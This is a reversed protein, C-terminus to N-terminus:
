QQTQTPSEAPATTSQRDVYVGYAIALIVVVVAAIILNRNVNM